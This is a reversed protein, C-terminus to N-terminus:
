RLRDAARLLKEDRRIGRYAMAAFILAGLLLLVSGGIEVRAAESGGNLAVTVTVVAVVCILLMSLLTVTKQRRTNKYLFIAIFLLLAVLGNVIALVPFDAMTLNAVALEAAPDTVVAVPVFCFMAVLIAAFLLWVSQWRQIVM